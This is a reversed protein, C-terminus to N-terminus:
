GINNGGTDTKTTPIVGSAFTGAVTVPVASAHSNATLPSPVNNFIATMQHTVSNWNTITVTEQNQGADVIVQENTYFGEFSTTSSNVTVTTSLGVSAIPIAAALTYTTGSPFAIRGAQGIEQQMIETASRVSSHMETRNQITGEARSTQLLGNMVVGM